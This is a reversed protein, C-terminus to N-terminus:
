VDVFLRKRWALYVVVGLNLLLGGIRLPTQRRYVELMEYPIFLGTAIVTLYEAWRKKLWLGVGETGELCAYLIIGLAFLTQHPIQLLWALGAAILREILSGGLDLNLDQRLEILWVGLLGIRGTIMFSVAAAM